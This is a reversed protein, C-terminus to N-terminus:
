APRKRAVWYLTVPVAGEEIVQFGGEELMQRWRRPDQSRHAALGLHPIPMSLRVWVDVSVIELLFDANPKLVRAVERIAGPIDDRRLHDIAYTSVAGDFSADDFPLRRMDATRVDVRDGVGGIRANRLLREPTNDKIGYDGRYIDVATARTNPRALLVGIAARGSGAGVDLFHGQGSSMFKESPLELPVTIGGLGHLVLLGACGWLTIGLALAVVWRRWAFRLGLGTALAGLGVPILYGWMLLWPYGFDYTFLRTM